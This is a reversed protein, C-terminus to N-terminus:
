EVAFMHKCKVGRDRHDPCNCDPHEPDADVTYRTGNGTQSPVLWKGDQQEIRYLAALALGRQERDNMKWVETNGRYDRNVTYLEPEQDTLLGPIYQQLFEQRPSQRPSFAVPLSAARSPAMAPSPHAIGTRVRIAGALHRSAGHRGWTCSRSNPDASSISAARGQEPRSFRGAM